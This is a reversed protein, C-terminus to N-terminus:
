NFIFFFFPPTIPCVKVDSFIGISKIKSRPLLTPNVILPSFSIMSSHFRQNFLPPQDNFVFFVKEDFSHFFAEPHTAAQDRIRRLRDLDSQTRALLAKQSQIYTDLAHFSYFPLLHSLTFRLPRRVHKPPSAAHFPSLVCKLM